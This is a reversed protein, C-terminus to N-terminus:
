LMWMGQRWNASIWVLTLVNEAYDYEDVTDTDVWKYNGTLDVKLSEEEKVEEDEETADDGSQEQKSEQVQEKQSTTSEEVKEGGCGALGVALVMSLMLSVLVKKKM